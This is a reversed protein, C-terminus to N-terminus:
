TAFFYLLAVPRHQFDQESLGAPEAGTDGAGNIHHRQRQLSKARRDVDKVLDSPKLLRNAPTPNYKLHGHADVTRLLTDFAFWSFSTWNDAHHDRTHGYLRNGLGQEGKALGVYYTGYDNHLLYVGKM